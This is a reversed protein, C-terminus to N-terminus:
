KIGPYRRARIRTWGSDFSLLDYAILGVRELLGPNPLVMPYPYVLNSAIDSLIRRERLAERVLAIDFKKLYRLGGHILKGTAASTAGGFDSKEVLAVTYGRSAAEYAVAAGTIGGGIVLVDYRGVTRLRKMQLPSRDM